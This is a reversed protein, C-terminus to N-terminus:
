QRFSTDKTIRESCANADLLGGLAVLESRYNVVDDSAPGGTRVVSDCSAEGTAFAEVHPPAACRECGAACPRLLGFDPDDRWGPTVLRYDAYLRDGPSVIETLGQSATGDMRRCSVYLGVRVEAQLKGGDAGGSRPGECPVLWHQFECNAM